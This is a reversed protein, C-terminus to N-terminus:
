ACISAQFVDAHLVRRICMVCVKKGQPTPGATGEEAAEAAALERELEAELAEQDGLDEAASNNLVALQGTSLLASTCAQKLVYSAHGNIARGVARADHLM